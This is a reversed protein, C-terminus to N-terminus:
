TSERGLIIKESDELEALPTCIIWKRSSSVSAVSSFCRALNQRGLFQCVWNDFNLRKPVLWSPVLKIHLWVLIKPKLTVRTMFHGQNGMLCPASKTHSSFFCLLFHKRGNLLIDLFYFLNNRSHIYTHTVSDGQQATSFQCLLQLGVIISFVFIM